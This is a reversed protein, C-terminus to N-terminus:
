TSPPLVIHAKLWSECTLTFEYMCLHSYPDLTTELHCNVRKHELGCLHKVNVGPEMSELIM